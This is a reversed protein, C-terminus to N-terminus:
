TIEGHRYGMRLLAAQLTNESIPKDRSFESPFLFGGNGTLLRLEELVATGATGVTRPAAPADEDTPRPHELNIRWGGVM